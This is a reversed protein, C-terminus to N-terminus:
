LMLWCQFKQTGKIPALQCSDCAFTMRRSSHFFDFDDGILQPLSYKKCFRSIADCASQVIADSRQTLLSRLPAFNGMSGRENQDHGISGAVAMELLCVEVFTGVLDKYDLTLFLSQTVPASALSAISSKSTGDLSPVYNMPRQRAISSALEMVQRLTQANELWFHRHSDPKASTASDDPCNWLFEVCAVLRAKDLLSQYSTEPETARILSEVAVSVEPSALCTLVVLDSVLQNKAIRSVAGTARLVHHLSSLTTITLYLGSRSHKIAGTKPSTESRHLYRLKQPLWCEIAVRDIAYVEVADLIPNKTSDVEATFTLTAFGNRLAVAIEEATLIVSYWKKVGQQLEVPRGGIYVKYPVSSSSTKGVLFRLAAVAPKNSDRSSITM